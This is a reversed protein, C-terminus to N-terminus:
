ESLLKKGAPVQAWRELYFAFLDAFGRGFPQVPAKRIIKALCEFTMVCFGHEKLAKKREEKVPAFPMIEILDIRADRWTETVNAAGLRGLQGNEGMLGPRESNMRMQRFGDVDPLGICGIQHLKWILHAYKRPQRSVQAIELVGVLLETIGVAAALGMMQIQPVSISQQDTKLEVLCLHKEARTEFFVAFDVNVSENGDSKGLKGKHVLKGKHLPFEPIVWCNGPSVRYKEGIVTPLLMGFLVDVRRELQYAPLHRLEDLQRLIQSTEEM